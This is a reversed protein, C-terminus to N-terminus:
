ALIFESYSPKQVLNQRVMVLMGHGWIGEERGGKGRGVGERYGVRQGYCGVPVGSDLTDDSVGTTM